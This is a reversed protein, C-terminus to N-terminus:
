TSFFRVFIVLDFDYSFLNILFFPFIGRSCSPTVGSYSGSVTVELSEWIMLLLPVLRLCDGMGCALLPSSVPGPFGILMLIEFVVFIRFKKLDWNFWIAIFSSFCYYNFPYVASSLNRTSNISLKLGVSSTSYRWLLLLSSSDVMCFLTM